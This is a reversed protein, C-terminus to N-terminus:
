QVSSGWTTRAVWVIAMFREFGDDLHIPFETGAVCLVDGEM